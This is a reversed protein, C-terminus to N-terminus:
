THVSWENDYSHHILGGWMWPEWVGDRLRSWTVGYGAFDYGLSVKNKEPDHGYNKLYEFQAELSELSDTEKAKELMKEHHQPNDIVLM